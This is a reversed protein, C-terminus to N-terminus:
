NKPFSDIAKEKCRIAKRFCNNCEKAQDGGNACVSKLHFALMARRDGSREGSEESEEDEDEDSGADKLAKVEAFLSKWRFVYLHM